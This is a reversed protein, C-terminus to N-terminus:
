FPIDGSVHGFDPTPEENKSLFEVREAIIDTTYITAGDKQYSGTQIRGQVGVLKGKNLYRSCNEASKGFTTVRPFDTKKEGNVMRDIAITFSCRGNATEPDKTLRGTLIVSNM